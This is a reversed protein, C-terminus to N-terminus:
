ASQWVIDVGIGHLGYVAARRGDGCTRFDHVWVKGDPLDATVTVAKGNAAVVEYMGHPSVNVEVHYQEVVPNITKGLTM